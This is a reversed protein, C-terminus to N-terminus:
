KQQLTVLRNYRPMYIFEANSSPRSLVSWFHNVFLPVYMITLALEQKPLKGDPRLAM